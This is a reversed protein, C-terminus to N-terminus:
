WYPPPDPLGARKALARMRPDKRIPDTAFTWYLVGIGSSGSRLARELWEFARDYDGLNSWMRAPTDERFYRVGSRAEADITMALQRAEAAQGSLALAQVLSARAGRAVRIDPNTARRRYIPIAQEPRGEAMAVTARCADGAQMEVLRDCYTRAAARDGVKLFYTSASNLVEPSTPDRAVEQRVFATASDRMGTAWLAM